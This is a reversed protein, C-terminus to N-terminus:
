SLQVVKVNKVKHGERGWFIDLNMEQGMSKWLHMITLEISTSKVFWPVLDMLLENQKLCLSPQSDAPM